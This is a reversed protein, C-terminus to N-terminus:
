KCPKSFQFSSISAYNFNNKEELKKIGASKDLDVRIALDSERKLKDNIDLNNIDDIRKKDAILKEELHKKYQEQKLKNDTETAVYEQVKANKIATLSGTLQKQMEDTFVGGARVQAEIGKAIEVNTDIIAQQKQREIEITSKGAAKAVILQRDFEATTESLTKQSQENAKVM